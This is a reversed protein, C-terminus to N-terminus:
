EIVQCPLWVRKKGKLIKKKLMHNKKKESEWDVNYDVFQLPFPEILKCGHDWAKWGLDSILM